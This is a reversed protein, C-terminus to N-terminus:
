EKNSPPERMCSVLARHILLLLRTSSLVLESIQICQMLHGKKIEGEDRFVVLCEGYDRSGRHTPLISRTPYVSGDIHLTAWLDAKFKRSIGTNTCHWIEMEITKMHMYM